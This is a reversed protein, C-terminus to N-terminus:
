KNQLLKESFRKTSELSDRIRKKIAEKVPLDKVENYCAEKLDWVEKMAKSVKSKM